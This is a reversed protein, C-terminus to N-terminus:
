WDYSVGLLNYLRLNYDRFYTKLRDLVARDGPEGIYKGVHYEKKAFSELLKPPFPEIELFMCIQSLTSQRDYRLQDASLVLISERSFHQYYNELQEAYRGRGVYGYPYGTKPDIAEGNGQLEQDIAESFTRSDSRRRLQENKSNMFGYHYMQWASYARSSPERLVAIMKIEGLDRKILGPVAKFYLYSPSADVTLSKGKTMKSPFHKLYWGMGKSYNAPIDFYRVEKWSSNGLISPHQILYQYLATTGAKQAGIILFDPRSILTPYIITRLLYKLM